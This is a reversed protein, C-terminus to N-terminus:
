SLEFSELSILIDVSVKHYKFTSWFVEIHKLSILINWPVKLYQVEFLELSRLIDVPVM